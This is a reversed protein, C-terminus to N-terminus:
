ELPSCPKTSFIFLLPECISNTNACKRGTYRHCTKPPNCGAAVGVEFAVWNQTHQRRIIGGTLILLIADSEQIADKIQEWHPKQSRSLEDSNIIRYPRAM